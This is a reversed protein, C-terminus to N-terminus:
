ASPIKKKVNNWEKEAGAMDQHFADLLSRVDNRLNNAFSNLTQKTDDSMIKRSERFNNIMNNVDARLENLVQMRQKQDELSNKIRQKGYKKLSIIYDQRKERTSDINMRLSRMESTLSM